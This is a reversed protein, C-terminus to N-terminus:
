DCIWALFAEEGCDFNEVGAFAGFGLAIGDVGSGHLLEGLGVGFVVFGLEEVAERKETAAFADAIDGCVELGCRDGLGGILSVGVVRACGMVPDVAHVIGFVGCSGEDGGARERLDCGVGAVRLVHARVDEHSESHPVRDDFGVNLGHLDDVILGAGGSPGDNVTSVVRDPQLVAVILLAAM